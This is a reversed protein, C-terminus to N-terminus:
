AVPVRGDALARLARGPRSPSVLFSQVHLARGKPQDATAALVALVMEGVTVELAHGAAPGTLDAAETGALALRALRVNPRPVMLTEALVLQDHVVVGAPVIVLWRCALQHYRRLVLRGLAVALLVLLSGVVWQSACILVVGGIALACWAIWSVVIPLLLPAPSRLPLRREAGYAAAQVMAEGTEAALAVATAALAAALAIVAWLTDAGFVLTMATAPVSAPVALRVVALGLPSPVVVSLVMAAVLVGWAITAVTSAVDTRGDTASSLALAGTIALAVCLLRLTNLM